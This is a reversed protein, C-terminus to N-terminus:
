VRKAKHFASMEDLDFAIMINCNGSKKVISQLSASFKLETSVTTAGKQGGSYSPILEFGGTWWLKFPFEPKYDETLKHADLAEVLFNKHSMGELPLRLQKVTTVKQINARG